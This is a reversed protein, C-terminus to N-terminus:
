LLQYQILYSPYCQEDNFIVFIKPQNEDDVCSDYLDSAPDSLDKLPPRRFDPMGLKSEGTLVKALFMFRTKDGGLGSYNNSYSADVAFYSGKGYKTGHKGRLRHDFNQKCIADVVDSSTGHFLLKEIQGYGKAKLKRKIRKRKSEYREHLEKNWIEEVMVISAQDEPITEHFFQSAVQYEGCNEKLRTREFDIAKGRLYSKTARYAPKSVFVPRRRVFRRTQLNPDINIQHMPTEYFTLIYNHSGSRFPYFGEGNLYAAEIQEQKTGSSQMTETYKKWGDNDAWYWVWQTSSKNNPEQIYSPTSCRRLLFQASPPSRMSMEEFHVTVQSSSASLVTDTLNLTVQLYNVDCYLKELAVDDSPGFNKWLYSDEEKFQWFYPFSEGGADSLGMFIKGFSIPKNQLLADLNMLIKRIDGFIVMVVSCFLCTCIIFLNGITVWVCNLVIAAVVFMVWIKIFASGASSRRSLRDLKGQIIRVHYNCVTFTSHFLEKAEKVANSVRDCVNRAGHKNWHFVIIM